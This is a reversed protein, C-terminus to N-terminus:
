FITRGAQGLRSLFVTSAPDGLTQEAPMSSSGNMMKKTSDIEGQSYARRIAGVKLMIMQQLEARRSEEAKIMRKLSEKQNQLHACGEDSVKMINKISYTENRLQTRRKGETEQMYVMEERVELM